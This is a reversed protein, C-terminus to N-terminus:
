TGGTGAKRTLSAARAFPSLQSSERDSLARPNLAQRLASSNPISPTTPARRHCEATYLQVRSEWVASTSVIRPNLSNREVAGESALWMRSGGHHRHARRRLVRATRCTTQTLDRVPGSPKNGAPIQQCAGAPCYLFFRRGPPISM